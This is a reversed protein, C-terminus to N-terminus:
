LKRAIRRAPMGYKAIKDYVVAQFFDIFIKYFVHFLILLFRKQLNIFIFSLIVDSNVAELNSSNNINITSTSDNSANAILVGVNGVSVTAAITELKLKSVDSTNVNLANIAQLDSDSVTIDNNGQLSANTVTVNIDVGSIKGQYAYLEALGDQNTNVNIDGAEIQAGTINVASDRTVNLVSVTSGASAIAATADITGIDANTTADAKVNVNGTANLDGGNINVKVGEVQEETLTYISQTLGSDIDDLRLGSDVNVGEVNVLGANSSGGIVNVIPTNELASNQDNVAQDADDISDQISVNEGVTESQTSDTGDTNQKEVVVTGYNMGVETGINTVLVNVPVAVGGVVAGVALQEVDRNEDALVNITNVTINSGTVNTVTASNINNVSVGTAVAVLGGAGVGAAYDTTINNEAKATFEDGGSVNTGVVDTQVVNNINNVSVVGGIGAGISIQLVANSLETKVDTDSKAVISDDSDNNDHTVNANQM